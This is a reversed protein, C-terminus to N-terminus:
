NRFPSAPLGAGNYLNCDPNNAWGYRVLVPFEVQPSSVVIENGEIVADAWHFHHDSGAIAFGKLPLNDKTKLGGNTHEFYIRIKNQELKYGKYVPGSYAIMEGYTNARAALALRLGVDQKNKPHIDKADGIDITVAMGTNELNLTKMQSERLEAWNSETPESKMERFNALQVFYFPFDSNWQKRWDRILLPFLEGYQVARNDNAEGQYWIAGRISYPIIPHLMANYLVTSRNPDDPLRPKRPSSAFDVTTKYKWDGALSISENELNNKKILYLSTKDGYFGGRGGTDTVKVTIVAKGEKVMNGPITYVRKTARNNTAGVQKGNFYTIDWDDVTGLSLELDQGQFNAPIDLAYRFWVVGDFGDLGQDEWIGPVSMKKWDSDDVNVDVWVPNNNKYGEDNQILQIEWNKLKAEYDAQSENQPMSKVKKVADKFYPMNELSEASTWAEAITGGWSTSILGIPVHLNQNLNRGFFYAVSSFLGITAPSCVQWGGDRVKLNSQPQTSTAKEVHLLRIEPYNAATIEEKFNNVEGWGALPMEMNSQGSCIWVEGIMVDNLKVEKGDSILISYPGGAALTQVSIKWNGSADAVLSYTKNDWSTTIKVTKNPSAKGWIPADSQQQLVMNDSFIPPLEIRAFLPIVAFLFLLPLIIKKM